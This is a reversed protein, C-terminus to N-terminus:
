TSALLVVLSKKLAVNIWWCSVIGARNMAPKSSFEEVCIRARRRGYFVTLKM